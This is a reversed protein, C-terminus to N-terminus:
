DEEIMEGIIGYIVLKLILGFTASNDNSFIIVQEASTFHNGM